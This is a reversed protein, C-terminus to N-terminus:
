DLVEDWPNDVTESRYRPLEEFHSDLEKVDWLKRRDICRPKPMRGDDVMEDFKTTGVGVYSAARQRNLGRIPYITQLGDM